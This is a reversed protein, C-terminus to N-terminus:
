PETDEYSVTVRFAGNNDAFWTLPISRLPIKHRDDAITDAAEKLTRYYAQSEASPSLPSMIAENIIFSLWGEREATLRTEAPVGVLDVPSLNCSKLVEFPDERASPQCPLVVVLLAGWGLDKRLKCDELMDSQTNEGEPGNWDRYFVLSEDFQPLPYRRKLLESFAHGSAKNVILGKVATALNNAHDMAIHVRGEPRMVVIDGKRLRIGSNQFGATADVTAHAGLVPPNSGVYMKGAVIRVGMLKGCLMLVLAMIGLVAMVKVIFGALPQAHLFKILRGLWWPLPQVALDPTRQSPLHTGVTAQLLSITSVLMDFTANGIGPETSESPGAVNLVEVRNQQLWESIRQPASEANPDVVLFPRRLTRACLQTFDTGVDTKTPVNSRIILTGDSDRVNWETRLSRPVSPGMPSREQPTEELHFIDPIAGSESERGPPCWGGGTIGCAQAARLAAQDVGTQGGSVIKTLVM